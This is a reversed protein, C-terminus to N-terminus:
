LKKTWYLCGKDENIKMYLRDGTALEIRDFSLGLMIAANIPVPGDLVGGNGPTDKNCDYCWIMREFESWAINDGGCIDCRIEYATPSM